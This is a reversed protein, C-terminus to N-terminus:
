KKAMKWLNNFLNLYGHVLKKNQIKIATVPEIDNSYLINLVTYIEPYIHIGAPNEIEDPLYKVDYIPPNKIDTVLSARQSEYAIMKITLKQRLAAEHYKKWIPRMTVRMFDEGGTGLVYKTAGKPLSRIISTLLALYEENGQHITIEEFQGKARLQKLTNAAKRADETKTAFEEVLTQPNTTTFQKRGKITKETVLKRAILHNLSTYVINRHLNTVRILPGATTSGQKILALYIEADRDSFGLNLLQSTQDSSNNKM